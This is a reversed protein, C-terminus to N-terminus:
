FFKVKSDLITVVIYVKKLGCSERDACQRFYVFMWVLYSLIGELV